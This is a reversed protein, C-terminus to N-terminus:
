SCSSSCLKSKSERSKMLLATGKLLAAGASFALGGDPSAFAISSVTAAVTLLVSCIELARRVWVWLKKKWAKKHKQIHGAELTEVLETLTEHMSDVSECVNYSLEDIDKALGEIEADYVVTGTDISRELSDAVCRTFTQHAKVM